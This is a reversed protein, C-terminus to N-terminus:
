MFSFGPLIEGPKYLNLYFLDDAGRRDAEWGQVGVDSDPTHIVHVRIEGPLFEGFTQTLPNITDVYRLM